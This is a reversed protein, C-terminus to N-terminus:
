PCAEMSTANWTANQELRTDVKSTLVVNKLAFDLFNTIQKLPKQVRVTATDTGQAAGTRELQISTASDAGMRKCIEARILTSQADGVAATPKYNVAALRAGERAGHRVDLNQSFASGFEIIGFLIMFLPMALIAFEILVAGRDRDRSRSPHM